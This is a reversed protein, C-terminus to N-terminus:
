KLGRVVPARGRDIYTLVKGRCYEFATLEYRFQESFRVSDPMAHDLVMETIKLGRWRSQNVWDPSVVMLDERLLQRALDRPYNLNRNCWVFIAGHSANKMQRTTHGTGRGSPTANM